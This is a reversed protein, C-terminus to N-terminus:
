NSKLGQTNIEIDLAPIHAPMLGDRMFIRAGQDKYLFNVLLLELNDDYSFRTVTCINRTLPYNGLAIDSQNASTRVMVGDTDKVRLSLVKISDYRKMVSEDGFDSLFNFPVFGIANKDKKVYDIVEEASKLAYVRNSVKERYGLKNLVFKVVSGQKDEFVMLPTNTSNGDPAFYKKLTEVDLASDDFHRNGVLAVADYAVQLERVYVTDHDIL